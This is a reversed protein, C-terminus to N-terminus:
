NEIFGGYKNKNYKFWQKKYLKEGLLKYLIVKLWAKLMQKKTRKDFINVINRNVNVNNLKDEIIEYTCSNNIEQNMFINNDIKPCTIGSGDFGNNRVMSEVPYIVYKNNLGIFTSIGLDSVLFVYKDKQWSLGADVFDIFRADILNKYEKSKLKQNFQYHLIYDESLWKKLNYYSNRWFGTGWMPCFFNEKIITSGASCNYNCPYSYGTVAVISNDNEYKELAKDMYELFCPSFETDDDTRIFRDYKMLVEDILKQENVVPGLNKERKIVCFSNFVTFDSSELYGLIQEYGKLHSNKSPYDLGIYIDTYKAWGNNKLSEICKTFHKYRCLVPIIVPAYKM